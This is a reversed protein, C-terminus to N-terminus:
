IFQSEGPRAMPPVTIPMDWSIKAPVLEEKSNLAMEWTVEQGSYAAMRGMIAVMTSHALRVGNNIPAGSRISAFLENHEVQYMNPRPGDYKWAQKGRIFPMGRFGLERADGETGFFTATNDNACGGQQRSDVFGRAGSAYEYNVAFHDFINGGDAPIQRGGV